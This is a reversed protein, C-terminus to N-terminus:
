SIMLFKKMIILTGAGTARILGAGCFQEAVPILTSNLFPIKMM